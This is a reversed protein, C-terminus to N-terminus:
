LTLSVESCVLPRSGANQRGIVLLALYDLERYWAVFRSLFLTFFSKQLAVPGFSLKSLM